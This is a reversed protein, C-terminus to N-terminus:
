KNHNILKKNNIYSVNHSFNEKKKFDIFSCSMALFIWFYFPGSGVFSVNLYNLLFSILPLILILYFKDNKALKYGGIILIIVMIIHFIFYILGSFVLSELYWSVIDAKLNDPLWNVSAVNATGFLKVQFLSSVAANWLNSRYSLNSLNSQNQSIVNGYSSYIYIVIISLLLLGMVSTKLMKKDAFLIPSLVLMAVTVISAGRAQTFLLIPLMLLIYIYTLIKKQGKANYVFSSAMMIMACIFTGLSLPQAFSAKVRLSGFRMDSNGWNKALNSDLMPLKLFINDGTTYEYYCFLALIISSVIMIKSLNLVEKKTKIETNIVFFLLFPILFSHVFVMLGSSQILESNNIFKIITSLFIFVLAIITIKNLVVKEILIKRLFIPLLIVASAIEILSFIKNESFQVVVAIPLFPLFFVFMKIGVLPYNFAFVM